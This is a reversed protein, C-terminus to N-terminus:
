VCDGILMLGLAIFLNRVMSNNIEIAAIVGAWPIRPAAFSILLRLWSTWAWSSAVFWCFVVLVGFSFSAFSVGKSSPESISLSSPMVSSSVVDVGRGAFGANWTGSVM